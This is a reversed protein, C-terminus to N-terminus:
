SREFIHLTNDSCHVFIKNHHVQIERINNNIGDNINVEQLDVLKGTEMNIIGFRNTPMIIGDVFYLLNNQVVWRSLNIHLNYQKFEHEMNVSKVEQTRTYLIKYEYNYATFICDDQQQLYIGFNNYRNLVVGTEVDVCFTANNVENREYLHFYIKNYSVLINGTQLIEQGQLLNSFNLQWLKSQSYIDFCSFGGNDRSKIFRGDMILKPFRGISLKNQLEFGQNFEDITKSKNLIYIKDNVVMNRILHYNENSEFIISDENCDLLYFNDGDNHQFLIVKGFKIEYGFTTTIERIINLNTNFVNIVNDSFCYIKDNNFEFSKVANITGLSKM